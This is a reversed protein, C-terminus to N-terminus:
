LVLRPDRLGERPVALFNNASSLLFDSVSLEKGSRPEALGYGHDEFLRVLAERDSGRWSEFVVLPRYEGLTRSSGVLVAKENGETDVKVLDPVLGSESVFSDLTTLPVTVTEMPHGRGLEERVSAVTTGLWTEDPPYSLEVSGSQAGLAFPQIDPQCANAACIRRFFSHCNPNPEFSVTRVANALFLLSHTGFSAGVDFFVKPRNPSVLLREYLCKLDVDHGVTALAFDWEVRAPAQGMPVRIQAGAFRVKWFGPQLSERDEGLFVGSVSSLNHHFREKQSWPLSAFLANLIRRTARHQAAAAVVRNVDDRVFPRIRRAASAINKARMIM